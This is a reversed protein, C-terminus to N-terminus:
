TSRERRAAARFLMVAAGVFLATVLIAPFWTRSGLLDAVFLHRGGRKVGWNWEAMTFLLDDRTLGLPGSWGDPLELPYSQLWFHLLVGLLADVLLGGAALWRLARPWGEFRSALFAVGIMVLPQQATQALGLPERGGHVGIGAAVAFAALAAWFWLSDTRPAKPHRRSRVVETVLLVAGLSGLALPLNGQYMTFADDRIRGWTLGSSRADRPVERLLHPVFMDRLNLAAKILNAGATLLPKGSSVLATSVVRGAGFVSTAWAFWPALVLGAALVIAALERAARDRRPLVHLLYHLALFLVYPVSSYHTLIAAAGCIFAFLMRRHDGVRWGAVYFGVAALVFFAAPMRTWSYSVNQIFMPQFMLVIALTRSVGSGTSSFLRAILLMPFYALVALLAATLQYCPFRPLTLAMIQAAFANMLPPRAPLLAGSFLTDTPQGGLFFKSRQYHDLWDYVLNGGSYNRVLAQLAVAWVALLAFWVLARRAGAEARLLRAVAPLSAATSAACAVLLLVRCIPHLRLVGVAFSALGVLLVSLVLAATAKEVPRWDTRRILWYGPGFVSLGFVLPVLALSGMEPM